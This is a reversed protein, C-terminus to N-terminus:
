LSLRQITGDVTGVLLTENTSIFRVCLIGSNMVRIQRQLKYNKTNFILVINNICGLALLSGNADNSFALCCPWCSTGHPMSLTALICSAGEAAEMNWITVTGDKSISAVMHIVDPQMLMKKISTASTESTATITNTTTTTTAAAAAAAASKTSKSHSAVALIFDSHANELIRLAGISKKGISSSLLEVDGDGATNGSDWCVIRKDLGVSIVRKDTKSFCCAKIWSGQEHGRYTHTCCMLKTNWIKITSDMSSTCLKEGDKSLDADLISDKHSRGVRLCHGTATGWKRITGDFSCSYLYHDLLSFACWTVISKHGRFHGLIQGNSSRSSSGEDEEEEEDDMNFKMSNGSNTESGDGKKLGFLILTGDYSATAIVNPRRNALAICKIGGSKHIQYSKPFIFLDLAALSSDLLRIKYVLRKEKETKCKSISKNLFNNILWHHDEGLLSDLTRQCLPLFLRLFHSALKSARTIQKTYEFSSSLLESFLTAGIIPSLACLYSDIAIEIQVLFGLVQARTESGRDKEDDIFKNLAALGRDACLQTEIAARELSRLTNLTLKYTADRKAMISREFLISNFSTATTSGGNTTNTAFLLTDVWKRLENHAEGLVRAVRPPTKFSSSMLTWANGKQLGSESSLITSWLHHSFPSTHVREHIRQLLSFFPVLQFKSKTKSM